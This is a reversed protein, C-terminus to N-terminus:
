SIEGLLLGYSSPYIVNHGQETSKLEQMIDHAFTFTFIGMQVIKNEQLVRSNRGQRNRDKGPNADAPDTPALKPEAM